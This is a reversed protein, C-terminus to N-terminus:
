KERSCNEVKEAAGATEGLSAAYDEQVATAKTFTKQGTLAAILMGVATVAKSVMNILVTLAPAVATLIPAFATALSNKLQTLSSKLSSLSANVPASYQALNGMGEKIATKIKNILSFLDEFGLAYKLMNKFGTAMGSIGSSASKANKGMSLLKSIVGKIATGVKKTVNGLMQMSTIASNKIVSGIKKLSNKASSGLRKYESEAKEVKLSQIDHKQNLVEMENEANKLQQSLKSYKETDSGLTFAKGRDVLDQLEGKLYPLSNRLEDLDYQMRQFASSSEKGGTALFKEQRAVLDNIKKETAEIQKQVETYEQTPIKVDKLSEM